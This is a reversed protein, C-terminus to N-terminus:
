SEFEYFIKYYYQGRESDFGREVVHNNREQHNPNLKIQISDDLTILHKIRKKESKVVPESIEFTDELPLRNEEVRQKKFEKFKEQIEPEEFVTEAFNDLRFDENQEFYEVAKSVVDLGAKKGVDPKAVMTEEVFNKCLNLYAKTTYVSNEIPAIGLFDDKWFKAEDNNGALADITKVMFGEEELTNFILVGKDLKKTDIGEYYGIKLSTGAENVQIFTSKQESKFIGIADVLEDEILVDRFLCVYLEGGKIKPHDSKEYLHHLIHKSIDLFTEPNHFINQCYTYMDNMRLDASHSFKFQDEGKFSAFFYDFLVVQLQDDLLDHEEASAFYGEDRSKNGLRHIVLKDFLMHTFDFM